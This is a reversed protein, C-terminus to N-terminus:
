LNRIKHTLECFQEELGSDATPCCEAMVLLWAALEVAEEATLRQKPLLIVVHEGHASVACKNATTLNM